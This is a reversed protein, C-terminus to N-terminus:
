RLRGNTGNPTGPVPRDAPTATYGGTRPEYIRVDEPRARGPDRTPMDRRLAM